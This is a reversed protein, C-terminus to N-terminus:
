DPNIEELLVEFVLDKGALPHNCDFTVTTSSVGTVVVPIPQGDARYMQLQQGIQPDIEGLKAREYEFVRDAHHAGYAKDAKVFITKKEGTKMGILGEELGLIFESGGLRMELSAGGESSDFVTGDEFKGTYHIRVTDGEKVISM